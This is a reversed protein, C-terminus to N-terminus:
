RYRRTSAVKACKRYKKSADEIWEMVSSASEIRGLLMRSWGDVMSVICEM